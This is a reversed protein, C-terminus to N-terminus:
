IEPRTRNLRSDAGPTMALVDLLGLAAILAIIIMLEMKTSRDMPPRRQGIGTDM